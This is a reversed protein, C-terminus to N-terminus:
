SRGACRSYWADTDATVSLSLLPQMFFMLITAFSGVAMILHDFSITRNDKLMISSTEKNVSSVEGRIFEIERFATRVPFAIDDEPLGATAVQYLLPAFLHYPNRDILTIRYSPSKRLKRICALGGFGAGIVIAKDTQSEITNIM